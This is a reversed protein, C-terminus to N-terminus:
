EAPSRAALEVDASSGTLELRAEVVAAQPEFRVRPAEPLRVRKRWNLAPGGQGSTSEPAARGDATLAELMENVLSEEVRLRVELRTGELLRVVAEPDLHRAPGSRTAAANVGAEQARPSGPTVHAEFNVWLVGAQGDFAVSGVHRVIDDVGARAALADLDVVFGGESVVLWAPLLRGAFGLVNSLLTQGAHFLYLRRAPGPELAPALRMTLAVAKRFGLLRVVARMLIQNGPLLRIMVDEVAAPLRWRALIEDILEERLPVVGSVHSGALRALGADRERAALGWLNLSM